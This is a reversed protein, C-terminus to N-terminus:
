WGGRRGRGPGPANALLERAKARQAPTLLQAVKTETEIRSALMAAEAAAIQSKLAEIKALDVTDAFIAAQLQQQLEVLRAGPREQRHEDVVAKIQDRQADTLDLQHVVRMAGPGGPGGGPGGPGPGFGRGRVPGQSGQAPTGQAALPILAVAAVLAVAAWTTRKM